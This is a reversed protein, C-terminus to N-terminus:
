LWNQDIYQEPKPQTDFSVTRLLGDQQYQRIAKLAQEVLASWLTSLDDYYYAEPSDPHTVVIQYKM